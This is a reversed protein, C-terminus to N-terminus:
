TMGRDFGFPISSEADDPSASSSPAPLTSRRIVPEPKRIERAAPGSRVMSDVALSALSTIVLMAALGISAGHLPQFRYVLIFIVCWVVAQLVTRGLDSTFMTDLSSRTWTLMAALILSGLLVKLGAGSVVEDYLYNHAFEVIMYSVVFLILWYVLFPWLVEGIM